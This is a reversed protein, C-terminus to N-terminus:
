RRANMAETPAATAAVPASQIARRPDADDRRGHDALPEPDLVRGDPEPFLLLKVGERAAEEVYEVARAANRPEEEGFYSEPLVCGVRVSDMAM